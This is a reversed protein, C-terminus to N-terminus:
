FSFGVSLHLRFESVDEGYALDVNIPGVPSRYRAGIGYGSVFDLEDVEDAADGYDYFIAAGWNETLLQVYEVSGVALYRGGVIAEGERVGLSQYEYGRVSQDGGTRFLFDTPIGDRSDAWVVGIEGRVLLRGFNAFPYFWAAKGYTRAFTQDSLLLESAGSVQANLLYGREPYILDNVKRATWSYSPALARNTDQESGEVRQQEILYQLGLATEYDGRKRARQGGIRLRTAEEDQVDTREFEPGFSDRYGRETPPLTFRANARQRKQELTLNSDFLWGSAFVDHDSYDIQGRAGTNTSFGIGFGLRKAPSEVVTVEVPARAPDAPDRALGVFTSGFYGTDILQAQYELLKEQDYPEGPKIPSLNEIIKKDYRQLGAIEVDGFYVEPGSDYTVSLDVERADPNVRAESKAIRAYAYRKASLERLLARKASDWEEQSFIEGSELRWKERLEAVRQPEIAGEFEISVRAIRSPEGPEVSFRALWKGNPLKLSSEIKPSFFGQTAMLKRIEEPTNRYIRRLQDETMLPSDRRKVIELNETLLKRFPRPAAIEVQYTQVSLAPPSLALLWFFPLVIFNRSM